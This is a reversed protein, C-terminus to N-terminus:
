QLEKWMQRFKTNFTDFLPYRYLVAKIIKKIIVFSYFQQFAHHMSNETLLHLSVTQM